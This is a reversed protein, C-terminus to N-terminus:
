SREITSFREILWDRKPKTVPVQAQDSMVLYGGEQRVIKRVYAPNILHSHHVRVFGSPELAQEVEKLTRCILLTQGNTLFFHTYSADAMCRIIDNVELIEYGEQTPLALRTKLSPTPHLQEQFLSMQTRQLQKTQRQQWGTLAQQLEEERIPKLLYNLASFRFARIAYQDYATTFIVDFHFEAFQELLDFGNMRPMEIDLFLLDFATVRMFELAAEPQNFKALVQVAPNVQRLKLELLETAHKEDDVLIVKM